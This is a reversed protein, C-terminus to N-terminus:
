DLALLSEASLCVDGGVPPLPFDVLHGERWYVWRYSNSELLRHFRFAVTLPRGDTTLERITADFDTTQLRQGTSFPASGDLMLRDIQLEFWGRETAIVLTRDDERTVTADSPLPALIGVRRPAPAEDDVLRIIYTYACPFDHGNVFILSQETLNPDRPAHRAGATFMSNFVPLFALGAVLLLAGVPGHLVLLIKTARRVWRRRDRAENGLLGIQATLMGILGFAGIGAGLLLRNMPFAAAVPVVALVMGLAWFRAEPSSHLLRAFLVAAATCVILGLGFLVLQGTRDFVAWLDANLQSLQAGLMVPGREILAAAFAMPQRIPDIYLNSGTCGYGLANYIIRWAVILAAYPLLIALRQLWPTRDMTLQWAIIYAVIVIAAEGALLSVSFATLAAAIWAPSGGRRWRIHANLALLGVVLAIAAHRNALWGITMSHADEVAFLLVALGAVATLGHVQRYTFGVLVVAAGFWLLSQAHQLAPTDPWLAYDLLHTAATLPRLFGLELDPHGWWPVVGVDRLHEAGPGPPVFRFLDMLPDDLGAPGGEGLLITRQYYDDAVFGTRLAPLCLVLMLVAAVWPMGRHAM